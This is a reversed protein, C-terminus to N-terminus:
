RREGRARQLAAVRDASGVRQGEGHIDFVADDDVDTMFLKLASEYADVPREGHVVEFHDRLRLIGTRDKRNREKTARQLQDLDERLRANEQQVVDLMPSVGENREAKLRRVEARHAQDLELTRAKLAKNEATLDAVKRQYTAVSTEAAEIARRTAASHGHKGRM